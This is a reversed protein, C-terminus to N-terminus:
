VFLHVLDPRSETAGLVAHRNPQAEVDWILVQIDIFFLSVGM